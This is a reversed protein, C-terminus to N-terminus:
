KLVGKKRLNEIAEVANIVSANKDPQLDEEFPMIGQEVLRMYPLFLFSHNSINNMAYFNKPYVPKLKRDFIIVLNGNTITDQEYLKGDPLRTLLGKSEAFLLPDIGTKTNAAGYVLEAFLRRTLALKTRFVRKVEPKMNLLLDYMRFYMGNLRYYNYLNWYVKEDSSNLNVLEELIRISKETKNLRQYCDYLYYLTTDNKVKKTYYLDFHKAAQQFDKKNYLDLGKQFDNRRTFIACSVTLLAITWINHCRSM